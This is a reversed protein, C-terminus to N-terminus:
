KRAKWTYHHLYGQLRGQHNLSNLKDTTLQQDSHESHFYKTPHEWVEGPLNEHLARLVHLSSLTPWRKQFRHFFSTKNNRKKLVFFSVVLKLSTMKTQFRFLLHQKLNNNEFVFCFSVCIELLSM